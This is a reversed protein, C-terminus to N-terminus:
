KRPYHGINFRGRQRCIRGIYSDLPCLLLSVLVDEENGDSKDVAVTVTHDICVQIHRILWLCLALASRCCLSYHTPTIIFYMYNICIYIQKWYSSAFVSAM